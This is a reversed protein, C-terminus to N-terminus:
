RKAKVQTQPSSAAAVGHFVDSWYLTRFLYAFEADVGHQGWAGDYTQYKVKGRHPAAPEIQTGEHWENFSTITVGDAQADVAAKWMADYTAGNRRPKVHTDGNARRADYGPGVSPLCALHVRHAEACYRAFMNGGYTVIDYTYVGDFGATSAAGVQVTQAYLTAGGAHLAPQAAQWQAVPIDLARYVFFSTIGLNKLYAVDTEISQITRNPYPELHIALQLGNARAAALVMPLRQNEPSSQGWWSYAIEDIGAARIEDMQAQVVARNDSSYIGRAPYFASAIDNPPKHGDQNWHEYKSDVATTGYWPYYFAIVRAPSTTTAASSPVGVLLLLACLILPRM